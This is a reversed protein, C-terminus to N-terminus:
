VHEKTNINQIKFIQFKSKNGSKAQRRGAPRSKACAPTEINSNGDRLVAIGYNFMKLGDEM